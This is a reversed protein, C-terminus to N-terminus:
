VVARGVSVPVSEPVSVQMSAQVSVQVADALPGLGTAEVVFDLGLQRAAREGAVVVDTDDSQTLLAVRRYNAFYLGTLEPHRDLGLGRWVIAEFHRALFDTLFFTGIEEAHLAAFRGPPALFEYCHAGPLRVVDRSTSAIYLDLLGGTGCDGYGLLIRRDVPETALRAEIAPVIQEPRNHLPAPLYDVEVHGALGDRDFVARLERVLAGCALVLPRNVVGNVDGNM